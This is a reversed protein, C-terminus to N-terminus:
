RHQGDKDAHGDTETRGAHKEREGGGGGREGGLCTWAGTKM